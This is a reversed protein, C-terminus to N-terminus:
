LKPKWSRVVPAPKRSPIYKRLISTPIDANKLNDLNLCYAIGEKNIKLVLFLVKKRHIYVRDGEKIEFNTIM